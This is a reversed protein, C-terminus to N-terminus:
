LALQGSRLALAIAQERTAAGLKARASLVHKRVTVEAIGLRHAVADNRMGNALMCLVDHERVTLTSRFATFMGPEDPAAPPALHSSILAMLLRMEDRNARGSQEANKGFAVTVLRRVGPGPAAFTEAQIVAYGADKVQHNLEYALPSFTMERTMHGADLWNSGTSQAAGLILPDIAMFGQALYDMLWTDHMSSRVWLPSELEVDIDCANIANAGRERVLADAVWWIEDAPSAALRSAADTLRQLVNPM